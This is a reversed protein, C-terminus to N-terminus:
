VDRNVMEDAGNVRRYNVPDDTELVHYGTPMTWVMFRAKASERAEWEAAFRQANGATEGGAFEFMPRYSM